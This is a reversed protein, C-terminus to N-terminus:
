RKDFLVLKVVFVNCTRDVASFSMPDGQEWQLHPMCIYFM